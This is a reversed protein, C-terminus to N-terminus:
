CGAMARARRSERGWWQRLTLGIERSSSAVTTVVIAAILAISISRAFRRANPTDHVRVAMFLALWLLVLFSAVYRGQVNVLAYLGLGAVAPVILEM